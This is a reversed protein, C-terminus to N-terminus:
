RVGGTVDTQLVFLAIQCVPRAKECVSRAKECVWYAEECVSKPGASKLMMPLFAENQLSQRKRLM